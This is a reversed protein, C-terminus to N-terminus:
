ASSSSNACFRALRKSACPSPKEGVRRPHNRAPPPVGTWDPYIPKAASILRVGRNLGGGESTRSPVWATTPLAVSALGKVGLGGAPGAPKLPSSGGPAPSRVPLRLRLAADVLGRAGCGSQTGVSRERGRGRPERSMPPFRRREPQCRLRRFAGRNSRASSLSCPTCAFPRASLVIACLPTFMSASIDSM